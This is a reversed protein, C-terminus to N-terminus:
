RVCFGECHTTRPEWGFLKASCLGIQFEGRMDVQRQVPRGMLSHDAELLGMAGVM